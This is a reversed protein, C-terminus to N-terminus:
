PRAGQAPCEDASLVTDGLSAIWTDGRTFFEGGLLYHGTGPTALSQRCAASAPLALSDMLRVAAGDVDPAVEHILGYRVGSFDRTVGVFVQNRGVRLHTDWLRLTAVPPLTDGSNAREFSQDNVQGNWFAPALPADADDVGHRALRLLSGPSPATAPQWGARKLRETVTAADPALFIVSLPQEDAGLFSSTHTLGEAKLWATIPPAITTTEPTSATRVPPAHLSAYGLLGAAGLAALTMAVPRRKPALPADPLPWRRAGFWESVSVGLILWLSGLLWGGWVDSLFHVGLMIRSLGILLALAVFAFLLHVRSSWRTAHRILLYGLFGYFAVSITAHGSPFSYSTELLFADTPRVRQFALKGLVSFSSAGAVTVLLGVIAARRHLLWLVACTIALLGAVLPPSGLNTIWVFPPIVEPARFAAVLQATAHDVAVIPDSSVVDEILGGFLALLYLFAGGLLTLPLGTLEGRDMRRALFDMLRPHRRVFANRALAAQLSRGLSVALRWLHPGQRMVFRQLLWLALWILVGAVIALGLRTMWAQAVKLSQGFLYGGGVWQLGWGIGGLVNWLMFSRYRMGVSGAVFPAVEKVSPIFRGLFVSKAGHRDFFGHARAIHDPTLFWVGGDLWRAGYRQGLAYNLNDGLVAGAIAFWLVGNFDLHGTATLAGLLLLLTSGPLLLGVVFLTELLAALFAVWYGLMHMHEISPLLASFLNNM